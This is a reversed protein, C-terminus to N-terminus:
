FKRKNKNKNKFRNNGQRQNSGTGQSQKFKDKRENSSGDFYENMLEQVDQFTKKEEFDNQNNQKPKNNFGRNENRNRNGGGRNDDRNRNRNGGFKNEGGRGRNRNGGNRNNGFGRNGGREQGNGNESHNDANREAKSEIKMEFVEKSIEREPLNKKLLRQISKLDGREERDCFSYAVGENGARGTRGIRHVYTESENPLEYNFVHTIDDVDIGRAAVDTAVLVTTKGKKFADLAKQRNNQTKNGHIADANVSGRNLAKALNDAGRKTRTFVIARKINENAIIWKLLNVKLKKDVHYVFQQVTDAAASVAKVEVRVPQNLISQVLQGIQPPITASFFLTQRGEPVKAIIRKIDHIFGMDLMRDAEDLVLIKISSLKIIGQNILDILRGPTAVLVDVGKQLAKEQHYQSVGGYVSTHKINTFKGYALFNQSIQLALERTPTLILAKIGKVNRMSEESLRQIIPIAFAATKGTGTQASALLDKGAIAHPIAQQQIPTPNTYGEAQLAKLIPANIGLDQFSSM